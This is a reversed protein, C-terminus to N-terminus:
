TKISMVLLEDFRRAIDSIRQSQDSGNIISRALDYNPPQNPKFFQNLKAGTFRGNIMGDVAIKYALNSEKAKDPNNILDIGFLKSYNDYNYRGTLQVFGRGHYKAGDGSFVNGLGKGVRTNFGYKKEFYAESGFEDIPKFTHATEWKFTALMYAVKYRDTPNESFRSDSEIYSLVTQIAAALEANLPGFRATYEKLFSSVNFAFM